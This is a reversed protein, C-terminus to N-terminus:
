RFWRRWWPQRPARRREAEERQDAKALRERLAEIARILTNTAPTVDGGVDDLVDGIVAIPTAPDTM